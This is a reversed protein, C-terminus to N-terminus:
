VLILDTYSVNLANKTLMYEKGGFHMVFCLIMMINVRSIYITMISFYENSNQINYNDDITKLQVM